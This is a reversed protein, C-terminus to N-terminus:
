NRRSIIERAYEAKLVCNQYESFKQQVRAAAILGAAKVWDIARGVNDAKAVGLEREAAALNSECAPGLGRDAVDMCGSLVSMTISVVVLINLRSPVYM